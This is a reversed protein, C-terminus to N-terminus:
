TLDPNVYRYIFTVAECRKCEGTPYFKGNTGTTIGKEAAWMIAKYSYRKTDTVDSFKSKMSQPDPKGALRWLMTVIQERTCVGAPTFKGNTGTVIGKENGWLIAKYSYSNKNTVDSFKSNQNQPEPKDSLRWLMTVIQERTCKGNPYFFSKSNVDSGTAIGKKAAWIVAKYYYAQPNCADVFYPVGHIFCDTLKKNKSFDINKIMDFNDCDLAQLNYFYDIGTLDRIVGTGEIPAAYNFGITGIATTNKIEEESLKGDKNKDKYEKLYVRFAGDPFNKGNIEVYKSTTEAAMVNPTGIVATGAGIAGIASMGCLATSLATVLKKKMTL